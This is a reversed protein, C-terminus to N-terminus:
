SARSLASECISRDCDPISVRSESLVVAGTDLSTRDTSLVVAPFHEAVLAPIDAQSVKTYRKKAIVVAPGKGCQKLCSTEKIKAQGMLGWDQLAQELCHQVARSGQKRCSAKQCVLIQTPQSAGKPPTVIPPSLSPSLLGRASPYLASEMVPPMPSIEAAKYVPEKKKLSQTGKVWLWDGLQVRQSLVLEWLAVQCVKSLRISWLADAGELQISQLLGRDSWQYGRFQGAAEFYTKHGMETFVM